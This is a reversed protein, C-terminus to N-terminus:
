GLVAAFAEAFRERAKRFSPNGTTPWSSLLKKLTGILQPQFTKFLDLIALTVERTEQQAKHHTRYILFNLWGKADCQMWFATQLALPLIVRAQEPRLVQTLKSAESVTQTLLQKAYGPLTQTVPSLVYPQKSPKTYRRSLEMYSCARHRMIQRAVYIPVTLKVTGIHQRNQAVCGYPMNGGRLNYCQGEANCCRVFEFPSEHGLQQLLQYLKQPDQAAKNGHSLSAVTAVYLQRHAEDLNAEAFDYWLVVGAATERVAAPHTAVSM